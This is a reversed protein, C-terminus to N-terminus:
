IETVLFLRLLFYIMCLMVVLVPVFHVFSVGVWGEGM